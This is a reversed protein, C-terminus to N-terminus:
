TIFNYVGENMEFVINENYKFGSEDMFIFIIKFKPM